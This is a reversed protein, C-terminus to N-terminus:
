GRLLEAGGARKQQALRYVQAFAYSSVAMSWFATFIIGVCLLLFGFQSAFNAIFHVVIALLYNGINDKIFGFINRFDFAAGFSDHVVSMLMAAPIILGTALGVPFVLCWVCTAVLGGANRAAENETASMLATPVIFLMVLLIVPLTWVLAVCFLRLGETFYGGLDDWEPLPHAVGAIVNRTLRAFYGLLFFIGVILFAALYFLGGILIKPIWKPDEFAFAFPRVFDFQPGAPPAPPVAPPLEGPPPPPTYTGETM